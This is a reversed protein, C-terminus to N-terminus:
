RHSLAMRYAGITTEAFRQADFTAAHSPAQPVFGIGFVRTRSPVGCVMRSPTMALPISWCPPTVLLKQYRRRPVRSLSRVAHLARSFPCALGRTSRSTVLSRPPETSLVSRRMTSSDRSRSGLGGAWSMSPPTSRERSGAASAWWSWNSTPFDAVASRRSRASSGRCTRRPHLNGVALVFPRDAARGLRALLRAREAPEVPCWFPSVAMPTVVIREPPIGYREILRGRTFESIVTIAAAHLATWRVSVKLRLETARHFLDPMDEFSLDHIAAVVPLGPTPPAVYQVHLVDARLRRAAIPLELPIRLFPSAFRLRRTAPSKQGPWTIGTDLMAVPLVDDRDSLADVLNVIYTENGTKRRGVVHADLAVRIQGPQVM